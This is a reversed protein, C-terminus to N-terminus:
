SQLGRDRSLAIAGRVAVRLADPTAPSSLSCGILELGHALTASVAKLSPAAMPPLIAELLPLVVDASIPINTQAPHGENIGLAEVLKKAEDLKIMRPKKSPDTTFIEAVRSTPIGILRSIKAQTTEGTELKLRLEALLEAHSLMKRGHWRYDRLDAENITTKGQSPVVNITANKVHLCNGVNQLGKTACGTYGSLPSNGEGSNNPPTIGIENRFPAPRRDNIYRLM